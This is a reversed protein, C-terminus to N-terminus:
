ARDSLGILRLRKIENGSRILSRAREIDVGCSPEVPTCSVLERRFAGGTASVPDISAGTYKGAM